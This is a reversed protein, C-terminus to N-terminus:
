RLPPSQGDDQNGHNADDQREMQSRQGADIALDLNGHFAFRRLPRNEVREFNAVWHEPARDAFVTRLLPSREQSEEGAVFVDRM